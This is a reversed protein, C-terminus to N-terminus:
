YTINISFSEELTEQKEFDELLTVCDCNGNVTVPTPTIVTKSREIWLGLYSGATMSINTFSTQFSSYMPKSNESPIKEFMVRGCEDLISTVPSIRYSYSQSSSQVLLNSIVITSNGSNKLVVLRYQKENNRKQIDDFINNLTENEVLSSSIYGGLSQTPISVTNPTLSGSLFIQLM